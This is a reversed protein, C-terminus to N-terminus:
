GAEVVGTLADYNLIRVGIAGLQGKIGNWVTHCGKAMAEQGPTLEMVPTPMWVVTDCPTGPGYKLLWKRLARPMTVGEWVWPGPM